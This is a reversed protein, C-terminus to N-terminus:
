TGIRIGVPEEDMEEEVDDEEEEEEEDDEDEAVQDEDEEAAGAGVTLMDESISSAVMSEDVFGEDIEDTVDDMSTSDETFSFKKGAQRYLYEVGFAEETHETPAHHYPLLKSGLIEESLQNVQYVFTNMM